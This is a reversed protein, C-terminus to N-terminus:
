FRMLYDIANSLNEMSDKFGGLSANCLNCLLGRIAGTEHNHDVALPSIKGNFTRTEPKGCIACVSNQMFLMQEYDQQSIGYKYKRSQRTGSKQGYLRKEAKRKAKGEPTSHQKAKLEARRPKYAALRAQAKPTSLYSLTCPKCYITLGNKRNKNRHFESTAKSQGCLLCRAEAIQLLIGDIV